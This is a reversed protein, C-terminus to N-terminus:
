FLCVAAAIYAGDHSLSLDIPVQESGNQVIPWSLQGDIRRPRIISLSQWGVLEYLLQQTLHRVAAAEAPVQHPAKGQIFNEVRYLGQFTSAPDTALAHVWDNDHDWSIRVSHSGFTLEGVHSTEPNGIVSFQQPSFIVNPILKQFYKFGAEKAAWLAWLVFDPDHGKQIMLREVGTYVRKLFRENQSKHRAGELSLDVVDNGVM